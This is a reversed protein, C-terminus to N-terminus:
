LRITGPGAARSLTGQVTSTSPTIDQPYFDWRLVIAIIMDLCLELTTDVRLDPIMDLGSDLILALRLDDIMDFHVNTTIITESADRSIEQPSSFISHFSCSTWLASLDALGAYL